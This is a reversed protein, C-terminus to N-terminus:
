KRHALVDNAVSAVTDEDLKGDIDEWTIGKTLSPHVQIHLSLVLPSVPSPVINTPPYYQPKPLKKGYEDPEETRKRKKLSLEDFVQYEWPTDRYSPSEDVLDEVINV